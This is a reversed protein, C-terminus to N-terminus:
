HHADDDPFSARFAKIHKELLVVLGNIRNFDELDEGKLVENKAKRSLDVFLGMSFGLDSGRFALLREGVEALMKVRSAGAEKKPKAGLLAQVVPSLMRALRQKEADYAAGSTHGVRQVAAVSCVSSMVERFSSKKGADFEDRTCQRVTAGRRAMLVFRAVPGLAIESVADFNRSEAAFKRGMLDVAKSGGATAIADLGDLAEARLSALASGEVYHPDDGSLYALTASTRAEAITKNITSTKDSSKAM